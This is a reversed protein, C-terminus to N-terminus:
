RVPPSTSIRHSRSPQYSKSSSGSCMSSASQSSETSNGRGRSTRAFVESRASSFHPFPALRVPSLYWPPEPRPSHLSLPLTSLRLGGKLVSFCYPSTTLYSLVEPRRRERSSRVGLILEVLCSPLSSGALRITVKESRVGKKTSVLV